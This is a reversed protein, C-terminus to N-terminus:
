NAQGPQFRKVTREELHIMVSLGTFCFHWLPWLTVGHNVFGLWKISAETSWLSLLFAQDSASADEKECEQLPVRRPLSLPEPTVGQNHRGKQKNFTSM